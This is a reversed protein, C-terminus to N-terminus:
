DGPTAPPDPFELVRLVRRIKVEDFPKVIFNSAGLGLAELVIKRQGMASVMIVIISPDMAKIRRLAELGDVTPMVIDMTVLDPRHNRCFEIADAGNGVDGVVQYGETDLLKVLAQRMFGSDDVVLATPKRAM